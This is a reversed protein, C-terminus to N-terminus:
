GTADFGSLSIFGERRNPYRYAIMFKDDLWVNILTGRIAFRLEHTQGITVPFAKRGAAPYSSQADREYPSKSKLTPRILVRTSMTRTDRITPNILVSPSQNTLAEATTTYKCRLEFRTTTHDTAKCDAIGANIQNPETYRKSAELWRWQAAM